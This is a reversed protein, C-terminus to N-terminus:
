THTRPLRDGRTHDRPPPRVAAAACLRPRRGGRAGCGTHAAQTALRDTCSAGPRPPPKCAACAVFTPPRACRGRRTDGGIGKAGAGQQRGGNGASLKRQEQERDEGRAQRWLASWRGWAGLGAGRGWRGARGDFHAGGHGHAAARAVHLPVARRTLRPQRQPESRRPRRGACGCARPALRPECACRQPVPFCNPAAPAPGPGGAAAAGPHADVARHRTPKCGVLARGSARRERARAGAEGECGGGAGLHLAHGAGAHAVLPGAAGKRREDDHRAVHNALLHPPTHQSRTRARRSRAARGKARMCAGLQAPPSRWARAHM